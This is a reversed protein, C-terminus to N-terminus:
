RRAASPRRGVRRRPRLDLSRREACIALFAFRAIRGTVTDSSPTALGSLTKTWRMPLRKMPRASTSSPTGSSSSVRANPHAAVVTRPQFCRNSSLPPTSSAGRLPRDRAHFSSCMWSSFSSSREVFGRAAPLNFATTAFSTAPPCSGGTLDFVVIVDASLRAPM